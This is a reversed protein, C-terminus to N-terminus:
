TLVYPDNARRLTGRRTTGPRRNQWSGSLSRRCASPRSQPPGELVRDTIRNGHGQALNRVAAFVVADHGARFEDAPM